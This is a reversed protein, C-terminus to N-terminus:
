KLLLLFLVRKFFEIDYSWRDTLISATLFFIHSLHSNLNLKNSAFHCSFAQYFFHKKWNISSLYSFFSIAVAVIQLFYDAGPIICYLPLYMCWIMNYKITLVIIFLIKESEREWKIKNDKQNQEREITASKSRSSSSVHRAVTRINRCHLKTWCNWM